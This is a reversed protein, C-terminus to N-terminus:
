QNLALDPLDDSFCKHPTHAMACWCLPARCFLGISRCPQRVTSNKPLLNRETNVSRITIWDILLYFNKDVILKISWLVCRGSWTNFAHSFTQTISKYLPWCSWLKNFIVELFREQSKVHEAIDAHMAHNFLYIYSFHFPDSCGELCWMRLVRSQKRIM